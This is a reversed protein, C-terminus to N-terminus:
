AYEVVMAWMDDQRRTYIANLKKGKLTGNYDVLIFGSGSGNDTGLLALVANKGCSGDNADWKVWHTDDAAVQDTMGGNKYLQVLVEMTVSNAIHFQMVYKLDTPPASGKYTKYREMAIIDWSVQQAEPVPDMNKYSRVNVIAGPAFVFEYADEDDTAVRRLTSPLGRFLPNALDVGGEVTEKNFLSMVETGTEGDSTSIDKDIKWISAYAAAFKNTTKDKSTDATAASILDWIKQGKAKCSAVDTCPISSASAAAVRAHVPLSSPKASISGSGSPQSGIACASPGPINNSEASASPSAPPSVVSSPRSTVSSARVSSASIKDSSAFVSASGSPQSASSPKVSIGSSPKGSSSPALFKASSPLPPVASSRSLPVASKSPKATTSVATPNASSKVAKPVLERNRDGELPVALVGSTVLISALLAFPTGIRM